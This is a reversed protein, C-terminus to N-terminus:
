DRIIWDMLQSMPILIDVPIYRCTYIVSRTESSKIAIIGISKLIVYKENFKNTVKKTVIIINPSNVLTVPMMEFSLIVVSIIKTPAVGM